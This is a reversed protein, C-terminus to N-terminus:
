VLSFLLPGLLKGSVVRQLRTGLLEDLRRCGQVPPLVVIHWRRLRGLHVPRGRHAESRFRLLRRYPGPVVGHVRGRGVGAVQAHEQVGLRQRFVQPRRRPLVGRPLRLPEARRVQRLEQPVRGTRRPALRAAAAAPPADARRGPRVERGLRLRGMPRPEQDGGLREHLAGRERGHGRQVRRGRRRPLDADVRRRGLRRGRHEACRPRRLRLHQRRPVEAERAPADGRPQLTLGCLFLLAVPVGEAASGQLPLRVHRARGPPAHAPGSLPLAPGDQWQDGERGGRLVARGERGHLVPLASSLQSAPAPAGGGPVGRLDLEQVAWLVVRSAHGHRRAHGLHRERLM